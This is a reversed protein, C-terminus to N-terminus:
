GAVELALAGFAAPSGDEEGAPPTAATVAAATTRKMDADPETESWRECSSDTSADIARIGAAPWGATAGPVIACSRM